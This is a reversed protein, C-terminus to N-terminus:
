DVDGMKQLYLLKQYLGGETHSLETHSGEEVVKGKELVIIKDAKKITSLRHAIIIVTRGKRVKEMAEQILQESYSDLNSTAEDFILIRPNALIARAIGIRQRQGGSLKVGREGVLTEYGDKLQLIFEEANAIRAAAQVESFSASPKAYAINDRISTNFIEVEQPVIAMFKRFSYVDYERLDKGDLFIEGETPDYHRYALRAITTKGGGSPGVLATTCGSNIKFSVEDLAKVRSEEYFFTIGRFDVEGAIMKPAIGNKPNKIRTKERSLDYLRAVGEGSDMIKDYLRSIRYLSILSKESITYVFVLTGVSLQGKFVLYIGSILIFARGLDIVLNRQLNCRMYKGYEYLVLDLVNRTMKSFINKERKEAVFSKVANINIISQGMFGAAKEQEDFRRRRTPYTEQNVWFSLFIFIPVFFILTFGFRWDVFFLTTTTLIIQFITPVVEWSFNVLLQDLKDVGRQIKFVKSGTDEKEHYGLDLSLLKSFSSNSVNWEVLTLIDFIRNNNFYSLISATQNSLIMLVIFIAIKAIDESHFNTILDIILKLIYPGILNVSESIVIFFLLYYIKKHASAILYWLKRWFGWFDFEPMANNKKEESKEM